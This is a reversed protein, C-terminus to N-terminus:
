MISVFKQMTSCDHIHDKRYRYYSLIFLVIFGYCNHTAINLIKMGPPGQVLTISSAFSQLFSEAANEQTKNLQPLSISGNQVNGIMDDLSESQMKEEVGVQDACPKVDENMDFVEHEGFQTEENCDNIDEDDSKSSSDDYDDFRIHTASKMGLLKNMFSVNPAKLCAEFQRQESILSTIPLLHCELSSSQSCNVLESEYPADKHFMMLSLTTIGDYDDSGKALPVVSALFSHRRRSSPYQSNIIENFGNNLSDLITVEFICGPKMDLLEKSTFPEFDFAYNDQLDTHTRRFTLNHSVFLASKPKAFTMSVFGTKEKQARILQVFCDGNNNRVNGNDYTTCYSNNCYLKKLSDALICRSEEMVLSALLMYYENRDRFTSPLARPLSIGLCGCTEEMFNVWSSDNSSSQLISDIGHHLLSAYFRESPKIRKSLRFRKSNECQQHCKQRHDHVKQKKNHCNTSQNDVRYRKLFNQAKRRAREAGGIFKESKCEKDDNKSKYM